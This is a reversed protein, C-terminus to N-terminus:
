LRSHEGQVIWQKECSHSAQSQERPDGIKGNLRRDGVRGGFLRQVGRIVVAAPARVVPEVGDGPRRRTGDVGLSDKLGPGSATPRLWAAVDQGLLTQRVAWPGNCRISVPSERMMLATNRLPPM